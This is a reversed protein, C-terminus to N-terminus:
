LGWAERYADEYGVYDGYVEEDSSGINTSDILRTPIVYEEHDLGAVARAVADAGLWGVWESPPFAMTVSIPSNGSRIAELVSPIGDHGVIKVDSGSSQLAPAIFTTMSDQSVQVYKLDPEARVLASAQPGLRSSMTAPDVETTDYVCTDPCAAEFIETGQEALPRYLPIVSIDMLTANAECNSDALMWNSLAEGSKVFDASVHAEVGEPLEADPQGIYMDVVPIGADAAKKVENPIVSPDVAYLLIADAKQQIAQNVGEAFRSAQGKADYVTVNAGFSELGEKFGNISRTAFENILVSIWHINKGELESKDIPTPPLHLEFPARFEDVKAQAEEVCTSATTTDGGNGSAATTDGDSDGGGCAVVVVSAFVAVMLALIRMTKSM